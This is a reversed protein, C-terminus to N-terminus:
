LSHFNKGSIEIMYCSYKKSSDCIINEKVRGSCYASKVDAVTLCHLNAPNMLDSRSSTTLSSEKHSWDTESLACYQQNGISLM